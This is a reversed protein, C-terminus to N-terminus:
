DFQRFCRGDSLSPDSPGLVRCVSGAKEANRKLHQFSVDSVPVRVGVPNRAGQAHNVVFLEIKKPRPPGSRQLDGRKPQLVHALDDGLPVLKGRWVLLENRLLSPGNNELAPVFYVTVFVLRTGM